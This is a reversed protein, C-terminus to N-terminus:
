KAMRQPQGWRDWAKETKLKSWPTHVESNGPSLILVQMVLRPTQRLLYPPMGHCGPGQKGCKDPEPFTAWNSYGTVLWVLRTWLLPPTSGKCAGTRIVAILSLNEPMLVADWLTWNCAWNIKWVNHFMMPFFSHFPDSWTGNCYRWYATSSEGSTPWWRQKARAMQQSAEGVCM